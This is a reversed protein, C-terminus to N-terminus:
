ASGKRELRERLQRALEQDHAEKRLVELRRAEDERAQQPERENSPTM